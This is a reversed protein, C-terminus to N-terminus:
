GMEESAVWKYKEVEGVDVGDYTAANLVASLYCNNCPTAARELGGLAWVNSSNSIVVHRPPSVSRILAKTCFM